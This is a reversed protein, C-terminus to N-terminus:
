TAFIQQWEPKKYQPCKPNTSIHGVKGCKYCMLKLTDGKSASTMPNVTKNCDRNSPNPPSHQVQTGLSVNSRSQQQRIPLNCPCQKDHPKMSSQPRCGAIVSVGVEPMREPGQGTKLLILTVELNRAWQVINDITSTEPSIGNYLALHQRYEFPLGRFLKRWFSYPDPYETLQGAWMLLERYFAMIGEECSYCINIYQQM